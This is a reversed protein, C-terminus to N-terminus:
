FVIPTGSKKLFSYRCCFPKSPKPGSKPWIEDPARRIVPARAQNEDHRGQISSTYTCQHLYKIFDFIQDSPINIIAGVAPKQPPKPFLIHPEGNVNHAAIGSLAFSLVEWSQHLMIYSM